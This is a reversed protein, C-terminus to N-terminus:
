SSAADGKYAIASKVVDSIVANPKTRTGSQKRMQRAEEKSKQVRAYLTADLSDDMWSHMEKVLKSRLSMVNGTGNVREMVDEEVNSTTSPMEKLIFGVVQDKADDPDNAVEMWRAALTAWGDLAYSIKIREEAIMDLLSQYATDNVYHSENLLAAQIAMARARAYEIFSVVNIDIVDALEQIEMSRTKSYEVVEYQLVELMGQQRSLFGVERTEDETVLSCIPAAFTSLVDLREQLLERTMGVQGAVARALVRVLRHLSDTSEEALKLLVPRSVQKMEAIGVIDAYNRGFMALIELFASQADTASIALEYEALKKDSPDGFEVDTQLRIERMMIPDMHGGSRTRRAEIMGHLHDDRASLSCWNPVDMLSMILDNSMNGERGTWNPILAEFDDMEAKPKRVRCLEVRRTNFGVYVGREEFSKYRTAM